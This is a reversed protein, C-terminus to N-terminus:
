LKMRQFKMKEKKWQLVRGYERPKGEAINGDPAQAIHGAVRQLAMQADVRVVLLDVEENPSNSWIKNPLRAFLLNSPEVCM